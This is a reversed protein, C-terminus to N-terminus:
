GHGVRGSSHDGSPLDRRDLKLVVQDLRRMPVSDGEILRIGRILALLGGHYYSCTRVLTLVQVNLRAVRPVTNAVEAPLLNIIERLTSDDKVSPVELMAKVLKEVANPSLDPLDGEDPQITQPMESRRRVSRRQTEEVRDLISDVKAIIVDANLQIALPTLASTTAGVQEISRLVVQPLEERLRAPDVGIGELFSRGDPTITPDALPELQAQIAAVLGERVATHGDLPLTPQQGFREDLASELADATQTPYDRMMATLAVKLATELARREPTGFLMRATRKVANDGLLSVLWAVLAGALM